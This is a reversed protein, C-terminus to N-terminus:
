EMSTDSMHDVDEVNVTPSTTPLPERFSPRLDYDPLGLAERLEAVHLELPVLGGNLRCRVTVFERPATRSQTEVDADRQLADIRRFQNFTPNTPMVLPTQELQRAHSVAWYARSADGLQDEVPLSGNKRKAALKWTSALQAALEEDSKALTVFKSTFCQLSKGSGVAEQSFVTLRRFIQSRAVLECPRVEAQSATPIAQVHAFRSRLPTSSRCAVCVMEPRAEMNM